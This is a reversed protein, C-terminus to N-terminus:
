DVHKLEEEAKKGADIIMRIRKRLAKVGWVQRYLREREEEQDSKTQIWLVSLDRELEEFVEKIPESEFWQRTRIGRDAIFKFNKSL